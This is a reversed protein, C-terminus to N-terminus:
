SPFGLLVLKYRATADRANLLGPMAYAARMAGLAVRLALDRHAYATRLDPESSGHVLRSRIDYLRKLQAFMDKRKDHDAPELLTALSACVKFATEQAEGFLNEWCMVADIFGDMPDIRLTAASILRRMGIDLSAPHNESVRRAWLRIGAALEHTIAVPPFPAMGGHAIASSTSQDLPTIQTTVEDIPALISEDESALMISYRIRDILSKVKKQVAEAAPRRKEWDAEREEPTAEQDPNWKDISLIRQSAKGILLAGSERGSMGSGLYSRATPTMPRLEGFPTDISGIDESLEINSLGVLLPLDVREQRALARSVSLTDKAYRMCAELSIEGNIGALLLTYRVMTEPMLALQFSFGSGSEWTLMSNGAAYPSGDAAPSDPFLKGLGDDRRIAQVLQKGADLHLIVSSLNLYRFHRFKEDPEPLLLAPYSNRVCELLLAEVADASDTSPFTGGCWERLTTAVGTKGLQPLPGLIMARRYDREFGEPTALVSQAFQALLDLAASQPQTLDSDDLGSPDTNLVYGVFPDAFAQRAAELRADTM